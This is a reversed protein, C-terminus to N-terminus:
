VHDSRGEVTELIMREMNDMCVQQDFDKAYGLYQRRCQARREPSDLWYDIREALADPDNFRFLNEENLAFFRTASRPSDAIVPVLGCAIAELCSIAEIEIEAPHVYLDAYNLVRVMEDRSFFQMVPRIPLRKAAYERLAQEQPGAGAFILQIKNAYKSRAAGDILVKHSKERSYRGTFLIVFKDRYAEPREAPMPRFRANVGNSIVRGVTAHGVASEYTDRIFQTPYHICDVRSYVYKDFFRYVGRNFHKNNMQFVHNSFNEAQCHFGATIPINMEQALKAVTHSTRFPILLHVADAGRLVEQLTSKKPNALQVGNKQVYRNLPGLNLTPIVYFDADNKREADPCVVRVTHGKARLSRILNMAAVSTGNNETGLVDCVVVITM